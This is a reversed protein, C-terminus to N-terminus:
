FDYVVVRSVVVATLARPSFSTAIHSAWTALRRDRRSRRTLRMGLLLRFMLRTSSRSGEVAAGTLTVLGEGAFFSVAGAGTRAGTGTRAATGGAARFVLAAGAFAAVFAAGFVVVRPFFRGDSSPSLSFSSSLTGFFRAFAVVFGTAGVLAGAGAARLVRAAELFPAGAAAAWTRDGLGVLLLRGAVRVRRTRQHARGANLQNSLCSLLILCDRDCQV